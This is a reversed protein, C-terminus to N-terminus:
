SCSKAIVTMTTITLTALDHRMTGSAGNSLTGTVSIRQGVHKKLDDSGALVLSKHATADMKAHEMSMADNFTLLFMGGHNVATVCGSYTMNMMVPKSSDMAKGAQAGAVAPASLAAIAMMLMWKTTM